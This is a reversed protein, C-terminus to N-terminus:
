SVFSVVLITPPYLKPEFLLKKWFIGLMRRARPLIRQGIPSLTLTLYVSLGIKVSLETHTPRHSQMKWQKLGELGEIEIGYFDETESNSM